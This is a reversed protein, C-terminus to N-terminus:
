VRFYGHHCSESSSFSQELDQLQEVARSVIRNLSRNFTFQRSPFQGPRMPHKQQWDCATLRIFALPPTPKLPQRFPSPPAVHPLNDSAAGADEGLSPGNSLM